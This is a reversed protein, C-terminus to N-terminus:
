RTRLKVRFSAKADPGSLKATRNAPTLVAVAAQSSAVLSYGLVSHAEYVVIPGEKNSRENMAAAPSKTPNVLMM